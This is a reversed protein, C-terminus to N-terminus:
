GILTKKYWHLYRQYHTQYHDHLSASPVLVKRPQRSILDVGERRAALVLAGFLSAQAQHDEEMSLGFYNCCMQKWLGSNLVGGSLRITRIPFGSEKIAECCQYLNALVGEMVAQYMLYTSTKGNLEQFGARRTDEWGPCREGVLFPIFIPVETGETLINEIEKYSLSSGFTQAKFWDLCNTCGSTAAGLLFGSPSRYCWTAHSISLWPKPITLRLAGSTGMSLTLIGESEADSGIHNLAGDPLPPLVPVGEKQRMALSGHGSLADVENWASVQPFQVDLARAMEHFDEYQTSFLGMGSLMCATEKWIGTLRYHLYGAMSGVFCGPKLKGTEQFHLLTFYPYIANVMAGSAQYYETVFSNDKRLDACLEQATGDPWDLLPFLPEKDQNCIVLSHWTGGTTIADAQEGACVQSGLQIVQECLKGVDKQGHHLCSLMRNANTVTDLFQVKSSTTSIELALVKM